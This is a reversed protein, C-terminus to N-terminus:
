SEPSNILRELEAESHQCFLEKALAKWERETANSPKRSGPRIRVPRQGNRDVQPAREIIGLQIGALVIARTFDKM